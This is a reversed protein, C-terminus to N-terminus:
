GVPYYGFEQSIELLQIWVGRGPDASRLFLTSQAVNTPWSWSPWIATATAWALEVRSQANHRPSGMAEDEAEMRSSAAEATADNWTPYGSDLATTGSPFRPPILTPHYGPTGNARLSRVFLFGGAALAVATAAGLAYKVKTKM